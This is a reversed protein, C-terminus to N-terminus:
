CFVFLQCAASPPPSVRQFRLTSVLAYRPRPNRFGMSGSSATLYGTFGTDVVTEVREALDNAIGTVSVTLTAELGDDTVAGIM